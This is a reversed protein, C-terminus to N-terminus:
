IITTYLRSMTHYTTLSVRNSLGRQFIWEMNASSYKMTIPILPVILFATIICIIILEKKFLKRPEKKIENFINRPGKKIFLYLILVIFIFISIHKSYVSLLLVIASFFIYKKNNTESFRLFLYTGLIILALALMEPMVIQSMKVIFPNTALLLSSCFSITEDYISRVLLFWAIIAIISFFVITLRASFVSIGFIYYFPVEAIGLLLPHHGLSLAPYRAFYRYAHKVPDTVPLDSILDCFYVGNMMHRPMDGNMSVTGEDMIGRTSMYFMLFCLFPLYYKTKNNLNHIVLKM